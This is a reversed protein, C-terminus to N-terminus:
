NSSLKIFFYGKFKEGYQPNDEEGGLEILYYYTGEPLHDGGVDLKSTSRVDWDNKYDDSSYVELGWRNFVKIKTGPFFEVNEIVFVDNFGDGNPTVAETITIGCPQAIIQLEASSKCGNIDTAVNYYTSQGVSSGTNYTYSTGVGLSNGFDDFWEYSLNPDQLNVVLTVDKGLCITKDGGETDVEVIPLANVTVSFSSSAINGNFDTATYTVITTGIPFVDNIQSTSTFSSIGCNDTANPAVWVVPQNECGIIDTPMNSIVPLENDTVTVNFQCLTTNGYTDEATYTVQTTGIPFVSGSTHTSTLSIIACNDTATVAPWNAVAGCVGADSSLTINSPCNDFIPNLLDIVTIDFTCTAVNGAADTVTYTVTTVGVPFVDGPNHTSVVVEGPCNDNVTPAVWNVVDSCTVGSMNVSIDTPCNIFTPLQNDIVTVSFNCLLVNGSNDTITWEVDTVGYNFAQGALTTSGTATTAGSLVYTYTLTGCNDSAIPDWATGIHTYDCQNLDTQVTNNSPCSMTPDENDIVGINFSCTATNGAPDELTYTILTTTGVNFVVGPSFNSSLTASCNDTGVPPTWNVTASCDGLDNPYSLNDAPCTVTFVPSENDTITINFQCLTTNGYTDVATYTVQTTGIPFLDGPNHTSTLSAIACNDTATVVPWNAIAGCVGADSSSSMDVPCNDFVPPIVDVVTVDFACTATNGAIDTITYTVTTTGVSFIDGSNHSSTMTYSPCNDEPTPATWNVVNSCTVGSMNVSINTPCGVFTPLQNDNVTVSFNCLITNGDADIITWEVDTVGYAFTQGNLTSGTGSTAGTLVFTATLSPDCNDTATPDLSTGVHTYDCQALDTNVVLNAPCTSIVPSEQDEITIDYFCTNVQNGEGDTVTWTVTTVGPNFVVGDLTSGTGTTVGTLIYAASVTTCNDSIAPDLSSGTHEYTCLGTTTAITQSTPCTTFTPAEGDFITVTNVCTASNASADTATWTITTLGANFTVGALSTGTGTTAGTLVYTLSSLLCNDSATADWATGVHAYTCASLDTTVSDPVVSCTIVPDVNDTVTVTQTSTATNGYIDTVTWTVTTPGTPFSVPADNTVTAVGCNDGTTPTGLSVGTAFCSAADTGVAVNAPSTITPDQTDIVAMNFSCTATNGSPDTLTYTVLTTTGVALSSGLPLSTSLVASCNDTGAPPIWSVNASCLGPTNPFALNDSPCPTTFVPDQDDTVLVEYSCSSVNPPTGQDNAFWTVVTTGRNLSMGQITNTTITGTTAGSLVVWVSDIDCNDTVTADYTADPITYTCVGPDAVVSANAPCNVTPPIIDFSEVVISRQLNCNTNFFINVGYTGATDVTISPTTEGTSWTYTFNPSFGVAEIDIPFNECSESVNTPLTASSPNTITWNLTNVGTGFVNYNTAVCPALGVLDQIYGDIINLNECTASLVNARVGVISSKIEIPKCPNGVARLSDRVTYTYNLGGTTRPVLQNISTDRYILTGVSINGSLASIPSEFQITDFSVNRLANLPTIEIYKNVNSGSNRHLVTGYNLTSGLPTASNNIQVASNSEMIIRSNTGNFSAVANTHNAVYAGQASIISNSIDATNNGTIHLLVNGTNLRNGNSHVRGSLLFFSARIPDLNINSFGRFTIEDLIDYRGGGLFALGGSPFTTGNARISQTNVGLNTGRMVFVGSFGTGIVGSAFEMSGFVNARTYLISTGSFRPTWATVGADWLMNNCYADIAGVTVTEGIALFSKDDFYVNDIPRPICLNPNSIAPINEPDLPNAPAPYTSAIAWHQGNDWDGSGVTPGPRWFMLRPNAAVGIAVNTNGGLNVGNNVTLVSVLSNIDKVMAGDVTFVGTNRLRAQTGSLQSVIQVLDGCANASTHIGNIIDFTINPGENFAYTKGAQFFYDNVFNGGLNDSNDTIFGNSNFTVSDARVNTPRVISGVASYYTSTGLPNSFLINNYVIDTHPNAVTSVEYTSFVASMATCEITSGTSTFSNLNNISLFWTAGSTGNSTSKDLVLRSNTINLTRVNGQFPESFSILNQANITRGIINLTGANHYLTGSTTVSTFDNVVTYNGIGGFYIPQQYNPGSTLTCVGSGFFRIINNIGTAGTFNASGNINILGIVSGVGVLAGNSGIWTINQCNAVLTNTITPSGSSADVVVDDSLTPICLGPNTAAPTGIPSNIAWHTGDHWNGNGGRWYFTRTAVAATWTINGINLGLDYTLATQFGSGLFNVGQYAINDTIITGATAELELLGVSSRIMADLNCGSNNIITDVNFHIPTTQNLTFPGDFILNQATITSLLPNGASSMTSVIPSNIRFEQTEISYSMTQATVIGTSGTNNGNFNIARLGTLTTGNASIGITNIGSPANLNFVTNAFNYTITAPVAAFQLATGGNIIGLFTLARNSFNLTRAMGTASTAITMKGCTLDSNLTLSSNDILINTFGMDLNGILTYNSNVTGNSGNFVFNVRNAPMLGLVVQPVAGFNLVQAGIGSFTITYIGANFRANGNSNLSGNLEFDGALSYMSPSTINMTRCKGGTLNITTNILPIDTADYCFHVIDNVTPATTAVVPTGPGQVGATDIYWNGVNLFSNNTTGKWYYNTQASAGFVNFLLVTILSLRFVFAFASKKSQTALDIQNNTLKM